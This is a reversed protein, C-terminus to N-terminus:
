LLRVCIINKDIDNILYTISSYIARTLATDCLGDVLLVIIIIM